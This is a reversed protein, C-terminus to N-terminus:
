PASASEGVPEIMRAGRGPIIPEPLPKRPNKASTAQGTTSDLAVVAILSIAVLLVIGIIVMTETKM